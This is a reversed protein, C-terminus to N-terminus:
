VDGSTGVIRNVRAPFASPLRKRVSGLTTVAPGQVTRMKNEKEGCQERDVRELGPRYDPSGQEPTKKRIRKLHFLHFVHINDAHPSCKLDFFPYLM